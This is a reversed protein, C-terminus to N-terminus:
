EVERAEVLRRSAEDRLFTSVQQLGLAFSQSCYGPMWTLGSWLGEIGDSFGVDTQMSEPIRLAFSSLRMDEHTVLMVPSHDSMYTGALIECTGGRMGFDESIYLRDIRSLNTGGVRKDLRSFHLSRSGRSFGPHHWADELRMTMCLHEWAARESGHLTIQSGGCRDEPTEIM